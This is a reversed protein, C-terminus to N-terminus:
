SIHRLTSQYSTVSTESSYIEEIKTDFLLGFCTTPQLCFSYNVSMESFCVAEMKLNLSYAFWAVLRVYALLLHVVLLQAISRIFANGGNEPDSFLSLNFELPSYPLMDWFVTNKM